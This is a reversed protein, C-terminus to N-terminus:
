QTGIREVRMMATHGAAQTGRVVHPTMVIVLTAYNKQLENGTLNNLGPIESLGPTGSIALSQSKDVEAAVVTAEGEKVTVVGSYARNDLIPNGDESSGSLADLKLDITLAVDDNRLARPTVALTLGIDQYQVMPINPVESSYSSLLSSLSSSVGAGTLGPISPLSGSLNGFSSTMIPYQEGLKLTGKEGDQLRFQVQDLERSDTTNLSLNVTVPGPVLASEAIGGGILAFGSSLLSSSVQGSAILIGLIALPDNPSALGSSIIQQVLSANANLISQEEAYVNFASISQPFQTGTNRDSTHAVQILRVDLLVQSRGDLLSQITANFANLTREPGGLILSHDNLSLSVHPIMFITKAVTQVEQIDDDSLGNLYITESGQRTFRNRNAATDEAVLVRHADLPVYFTNTTLNLLRAADEFNVDDVDFRVPAPRVSADLMATIGYAKFVQPILQVPSQHLHFSRLGSGTELAVPEAPAEAQAYLPQPQSHINDDALEDLHQAIEINHPDLARARELSARSGAENGMLRDKAADQILATVAHSRAVGAALRYDENTPDLTAAQEYDKMAAEFQRNLFLKSATLYLKAARRRDRARPHAPHDDAAAPPTATHAKAAPASQSTPPSINQGAAATAGKGTVEHNAAQAALTGAFLALTLAASPWSGGGAAMACDRLAQGSRRM